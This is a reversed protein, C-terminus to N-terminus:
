RSIIFLEKETKDVSAVSLLYIGNKIEGVPIPIDFEGELVHFYLKTLIQQGTLDFLTISIKEPLASYYKLNLVNGSVPNPFLKIKKEAKVTGPLATINISNEMRDIIQEESLAYDFFSVADLTGKFNNGNVGPLHQGFVLDYSTKNILGGVSTFADLKGDLWIEMDSGDYVAALYYWGGPVPSKESDLDTVTTSTKLTFRIKNDSISIKYRNEWNGHSIPYQEGGTFEDINIWCAISIAEQFNLLDNNTVRIYDDIGDFHAAGNASGNKDNVWTVGGANGHLANGSADLANGNMPYHAVLNGTPKLSLDRVMVEISDKDTMGDTDTVTCVIYCNDKTDPAKFAAANSDAVISGATSAWQFRLTDNNKDEAICNLEITGSLHVKRPTAEIKLIDPPYLVKEVVEINMSLTDWLNGPDTVKCKINYMGTNVPAFLFVDTSDITIGEITWEYNLLEQEPDYATCYLNISTNIEMVTDEAALAKIRPPYDSVTNGNNYDIPVSGAFTTKGQSTIPTGAPIQVIMVTQKAPVTINTNGSVGSVLMTNSIADYLDYSGAPIDVAISKGADYPNYYLYTPWANNRYYDTKILDLQLIGEVNTTDIIGGLIGVHSSSYLMLNTAAWGGDMADGTAYPSKGNKLEKMSEYAIYSDPDYSNAWSENDQMDDPLYNSYFLRSANAMNLIWKAVATAFRDDYRVMPVLAGAHEFGNMAFAYDNGEDNAEGILGSCDYDGWKGVIAGWGRLEGRDFCWNVMKEIDYATGMEANLRAATYVGYPLQLEYSPNGTYSNLYELCWESGTLFKRDGTITYTNYLIWAMAGAAEPEKVGFELPTMTSMSWARYNMYPVNWPTTSGGMYKAATLMQDALTEVQYDFEGQHPYLYNLQLFFINPLTEYWWDDGSSTEPHNLYINEEPRKNFFEQCMFAWNQGFQDSKDIGVLSAGVVAPIVNIAEGASPNVTGIATHLGFSTQGPYNVNTERFFVVPLYQGTLSENFVLSDYGRAVQKWDRMLYPQPLDPMLNIRPVVIQQAQINSSLVALLVPLIVKKYM